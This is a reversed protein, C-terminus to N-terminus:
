SSWRSASRSRRAPGSPPKMARRFPTASRSSSTPAGTAAPRRPGNILVRGTAARFAERNTIIEMPTNSMVVGRTKHRLRRYTGANVRMIANGGMLCRLNQLRAEEESITFTDITWPGKRGDPVTCTGLEFEPARSM